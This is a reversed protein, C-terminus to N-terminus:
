KSKYKARKEKKEKTLFKYSLSLEIGDTSKLYRPYKKHKFVDGIGKLYRAELTWKKYTYSVTGLCGAQRVGYPIFYEAIRYISLYKGKEVDFKTMQHYGGIGMYLGEHLRFNFSLSHITGYYDVKGDPRITPGWGGCADSDGGHECWMETIHNFLRVQYNLNFQRNIKRQVKFGVITGAESYTEDSILYYYSGGTPTFITPTIRSLNGGVTFSYETQGFALFPFFFLVILLLRSCSLSLKLTM